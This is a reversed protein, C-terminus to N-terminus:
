AEPMANFEEDTMDQRKFQIEIENGDYLFLDIGLINDVELGEAPCWANEAEEYYFLRPRKGNEDKPPLHYKPAATESRAATISLIDDVACLLADRALEDRQLTELYHAPLEGRQCKQVAQAGELVYRKVAPRIRELIERPVECNRSETRETM